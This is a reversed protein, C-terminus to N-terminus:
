IIKLLKLALGLAACVGIVYGGWYIFKKEHKDIATTNAQTKQENAELRGILGTNGYDDGILAVTIKGVAEHIDRQGAELVTFRERLEQMEMESPQEKHGPPSM